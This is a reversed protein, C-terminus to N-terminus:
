PLSEGEHALEKRAERAVKHEVARALAVDDPVRHSQKEIIAARLRAKKEHEEVLSQAASEVDKLKDVSEQIIAKQQLMGELVKPHNEIQEDLMRIKERMKRLTVLLEMATMETEKSFVQAFIFRPLGSEEESEKVVWEQSDLKDKLVKM